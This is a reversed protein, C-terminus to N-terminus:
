HAGKILGAQLLGEIFDRLDEDAQQKEVLFSAVVRNRIEELSNQGNLQRWIFEAVPNLSFICQMDALKGRIPILFSEGAIKRSVIEGNVQYEQQLFDKM